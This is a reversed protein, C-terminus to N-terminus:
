EKKLTYVSEDENLPPNSNYHLLRRLETSTEKGFKEGLMEPFKFYPKIYWPSFMSFVSWRDENSPYGGKHWIASDMIAITGAKGEIIKSEKEYNLSKNPRGNFLHSKPVYFTAANKDTFDNFMIIAHYFIGSPLKKNNSYDPIDCHWTNGMMDGSNLKTNKDIRRNIVTTNVLVHNEDLLENLIRNVNNNYILNALDIDHRFPNRILTCYPDMFKGSETFKKLITKFKNIYFNCQDKSFQDKIFIIGETKLKEINKKIEM